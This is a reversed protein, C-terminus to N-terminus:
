PGATISSPESGTGNSIGSCSPMHRTPRRCRQMSHSPASLPRKRAALRSRPSSPATGRWPDHVCRRRGCAGVRVSPDRSVAREFCELARKLFGAYRRSWYYRGQLYLNYADIDTTHPRLVPVESNGGIQGKLRSAVSRAIDDQVAFVDSLERDYRESWIEYGDAVDVLRVSIRLRTGDSRVSGELIAHAKLRRGIESVDLPQGKFQFASTRSVVRLDSLGTLACILEEAIGECMYDQDRKPSMDLLPLVAISLHRPQESVSNARTRCDRHAARLAELLESANQFRSHPQKEIARAVLRSVQPPIDTRIQDLPKPTLNLIRHIVAVASEADFPHYGSVMEYLMTGLAWLDTRHDARGGSAQEPSMYVVTGVVVGSQTLGTSELVKAVGFDIVKALGDGSLIINAPKLDRHVIGHTHAATLAEAVQAAVELAEQVPM